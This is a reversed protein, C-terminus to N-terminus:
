SFYNYKHGLKQFKETYKLIDEKKSYKFYKQIYEINITMFHIAAFLIHIACNEAKPGWRLEKVLGYEDFILYRNLINPSSHVGESVISYFSLYYNSIAPSNIQKIREEISIASPKGEKDLVGKLNLKEIHNILESRRKDYSKKAFFYKREEESFYNKGYKIKNLKKLRDIAELSLYRKAENKGLSCYGINIMEEFLIRCLNEANNCLYNRYLIYIAQFTTLSKTFLGIMTGGQLDDNKVDIEFKIKNFFHNLEEIFNFVKKYKKILLIKYQKIDKGLYGYEDIDMYYNEKSAQM